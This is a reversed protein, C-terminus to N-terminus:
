NLCEGEYILNRSNYEKITGNGDIINYEIEGKRNYGIGNWKKGNKFEGEFYGDLNYEKGKGNRKGNLYEGSFILNGKNDYEKGKGAKIGNLCQGEFILKKNIYIKLKAYENKKGLIYKSIFQINNKTEIETGNYKKNNIFEGKFVINKGYDFLEGKGNKEGDKFEGEYIMKGNFIDYEKGKGNVFGNFYDGEYKLHGYFYYKGKGNRIGDKFEGEFLLYGLEYYIGKGNKLGNKYEGEFILNGEYDYDKGKGTKKGNLYEGEYKLYNEYTIRPNFNYNNLYHHDYNTNNSFNGIFNKKKKIKYVKSIGNWMINNKFEGKFLVNGEKDYKIGKGEKKGNLYEGEYM